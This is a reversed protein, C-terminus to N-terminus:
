EKSKVEVAKPQPTRKVYPLAVIGFVGCLIIWISQITFVAGAFAGAEEYGVGLIVLSSIVMFHWAGVGGQVPVAVGVNSMTFVILGALPGLGKTFDFAYFCTYFYLYFSFWVLITYFIIRKKEKMHAVMKLDHVVSKFFNRVKTVPRTNGFVTFVIFFILVLGILVVYFWVSGFLNVISEGYDPNDRFYSIFFDLYLIMSLVVLLVSALLDFVKDVLYTEFAKAFPVGEYRTLAACRWVDGARPLLFNVAFNGLTAYIVSPRKPRYGLSNIFLEWRLGRIINGILGFILSILIFELNANKVIEWLTNLDTNRYLLWVILIGVGLSFVTKVIEKLSKSNM